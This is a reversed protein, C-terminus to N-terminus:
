NYVSNRDTRALPKGIAPSCTRTSPIRSPVKPRRRTPTDAGVGPTPPTATDQQPPGQIMKLLEGSLRDSPMLKVTQQLQNAAAASHGITTYHYALLFHSDAANPNALVYQELARLQQTYTDPDAYLGSMTTWDWGPGVALLSHVVGAAQKYDQLAFLVLGRFEHLVSDTPMRSIAADVGAM